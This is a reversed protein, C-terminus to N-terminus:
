SAVFYGHESVPVLIGDERLKRRTNLGIWALKRQKQWMVWMNDDLQYINQGGDKYMSPYYKGHQQKIKVTSYSHYGM